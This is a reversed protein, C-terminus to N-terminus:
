VGLKVKVGGTELHTIPLRDHTKKFKQIKSNDSVILKGFITSFENKWQFKMLYKWPKRLIELWHTKRGFEPFNLAHNTLNKFIISFYHTEGVLVFIMAVAMVAAGGSEGRVGRFFMKQTFSQESLDHYFHFYLPFNLNRSFKLSFKQNWHKKFPSVFRRFPFRNRSTLKCM